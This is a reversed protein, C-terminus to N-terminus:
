TVRMANTRECELMWIEDYDKGLGRFDLGVVKRGKGSEFGSSWGLRWNVQHLIM